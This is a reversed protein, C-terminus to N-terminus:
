SNNYKMFNLMQIIEYTNMEHHLNPVLEFLSYRSNTNDSSLLGTEKFREFTSQGWTPLIFDDADGHAVYMPPFQLSSTTSEEDKKMEDILTWVKSDNNLYCSLGFVGGLSQSQTSEQRCTKGEESEQQRQKKWQNYQYRIATQYAIAGGMSFGGIIITNPNRGRLQIEDNILNLLQSTSQEVTNTQEPYKPDFGQSSRDYWVSTIMGGNLTYPIPKANPYIWDYQNYIEQSPILSEIWSKVGNGTDGSGHCFIILPKNNSSTAKSTSITTTSSSMALASVTSKRIM